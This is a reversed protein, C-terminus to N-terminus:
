VGGSLSVTLNRPVSDYTGYVLQAPQADIAVRVIRRISDGVGPFTLELGCRCTLTFAGSIIDRHKTLPREMCPVHHLVVDLFSVGQNDTLQDIRLVIEM